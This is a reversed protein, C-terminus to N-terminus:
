FYTTRFSILIAQESAQIIPKGEIRDSYDSNKEVLFDVGFEWSLLYAVSLGFWDGTFIDIGAQTSLPVSSLVLVIGKSSNQNETNKLSEEAVTHIGGSLGIGFRVFPSLHFFKLSMPYHIRTFFKMITNFKFGVLNLDIGDVTNLRYGLSFGLNVNKNYPIEIDFGSGVGKKVVTETTVQQKTKEGTENKEVLTYTTTLTNKQTTQFFFSTQPQELPSKNQAFLSKATLFLIFLLITTNHM